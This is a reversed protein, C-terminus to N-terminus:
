SRLLRQVTRPSVGNDQAVQEEVAARSWAPNARVCADVQKRIEAPDVKPRRGGNTAAKALRANEAAGRTALRLLREQQEAVLRMERALKEQDLRAVWRQHQEELTLRRPDRQRNQEERAAALREQAEVTRQQAAKELFRRRAEGLSIDDRRNATM